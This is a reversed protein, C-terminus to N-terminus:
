QRLEDLILRLAGNGNFRANQLTDAKPQLEFVTERQTCVQVDCASGAIAVTILRTHRGTIPQSRTIM